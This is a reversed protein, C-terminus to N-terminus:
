GHNVLLVIHAADLLTRTGLPHWAAVRLNQDLVKFGRLQCCYSRFRVAVHKHKMVVMM